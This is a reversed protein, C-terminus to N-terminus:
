YFYISIKCIEALEREWMLPFTFNRKNGLENKQPWSTAILINV